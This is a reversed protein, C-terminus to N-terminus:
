RRSRAPRRLATGSCNPWWGPRRARLRARRGRARVGFTDKVVDRHTYLLWVLVVLAYALFVAQPADPHAAQSSQAVTAGSM